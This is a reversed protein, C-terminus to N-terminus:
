KLSILGSLLSRVSVRNLVPLSVVVESTMPVVGLADLHAHPRTFVRFIKNHKRHISSAVHHVGSVRKLLGGHHSNERLCVRQSDNKLSFVQKEGKLNIAVREDVAM